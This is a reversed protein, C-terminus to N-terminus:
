TRFHRAASRAHTMANVDLEVASAHVDPLERELAEAAACELTSSLGTLAAQARTPPLRGLRVAASLLNSAVGRLHLLVSDATAIGLARALAGEVVALNGDAAGEEVARSLAMPVPAATLSPALRALQRGCSWSAERAPPTTKHASLLADLELLEALGGARHAHAVLTADLPAAGHSVASAVCELLTREDGGTRALWAELGHSHAFRGIPLASDSLQLAALLPSATRVKKPRDLAM